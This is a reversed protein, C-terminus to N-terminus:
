VFKETNINWILVKHRLPKEMYFVETNHLDMAINLLEHKSFNSHPEEEFPYSRKECPVGQLFPVGMTMRNKVQMLFVIVLPHEPFFFLDVMQGNCDLDKDQKFFEKCEKKTDEVLKELDM